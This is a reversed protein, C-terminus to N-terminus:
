NIFNQYVLLLVTPVELLQHFDWCSLFSLINGRGRYRCFCVCFKTEAMFSDKCIKNRVFSDQLIDSNWANNSQEPFYVELFDTIINNIKCLFKNNQLYYKFWCKQKRFPLFVQFNFLKFINRWFSNNSSGEGRM